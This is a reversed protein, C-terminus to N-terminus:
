YYILGERNPPRQKQVYNVTNTPKLFIECLHRMFFERGSKVYPCSDSLRNKGKNLPYFTIKLSTLQRVWHRVPPNFRLIKGEMDWTREAAYMYTFHVLICLNFYICIIKLFTLTCSVWNSFVCPWSSLGETSLVSCPSQLPLATRGLTKKIGFRTKGKERSHNPM